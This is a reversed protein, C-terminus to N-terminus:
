GEYPNPCGQCTGHPVHHTTTTTPNDSCEALNTNINKETYNRICSLFKFRNQNVQWSMTHALLKVSNRLVNQLVSCLDTNTGAAIHSPSNSANSLHNMESASQRLLIIVAARSCIVIVLIFLLIIFISHTSDNWGHYSRHCDPFM